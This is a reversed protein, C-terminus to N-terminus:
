MGPCTDISVQLQIVKVTFVQDNMMTTTPLVSPSNEFFQIMKMELSKKLM